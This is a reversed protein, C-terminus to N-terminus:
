SEGVGAGLVRAIWKRSSLTVWDPVYLSRTEGVTDKSDFYLPADIGQYATFWRGDGNGEVYDFADLDRFVSVAERFRVRELLYGREDADGNEVSENTYTEFSVSFEALKVNM